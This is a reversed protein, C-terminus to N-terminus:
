EIVLRSTIRNSESQLEVWYMGKPLSSIEINSIGALHVQQLLQQGLNNFIKIQADQEFSINIASVAPNPYVNLNFDQNQNVTGTIACSGTTTSLQGWTWFHNYQKCHVLVYDYDEISVNAPLNYSQTGNNNILAALEIHGNGSATPADDREALYVYLDPGSSTSFAASFSLTM